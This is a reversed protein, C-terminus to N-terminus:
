AAEIEAVVTEIVDVKEEMEEFIVSGEVETQEVVRRKCLGEQTKGGGM